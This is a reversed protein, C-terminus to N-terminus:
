SSAALGKGARTVLEVGQALVTARWDPSSPVFLERLRAKAKETFREGPQGWHAARNEARLGALMPINGFTGFEAVMYLYEPAVQQAV